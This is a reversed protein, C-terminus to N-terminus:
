NTEPAREFRAGQSVRVCGFHGCLDGHEAEILVSRDPELLLTVVREGERVTGPEAKQERLELCTASAAKSKRKPVSVDHCPFVNVWAFTADALRATGDQELMLTRGKAVWRGAIKPWVEVKLREFFEENARHVSKDWRVYRATEGGVLDTEVTDPDIWKWTRTAAGAHIRWAAGDPEATFPVRQDELGEIDLFAEGPERFYFARPTRDDPHHKGARVHEAFAAEYFSTKKLTAPNPGTPNAGGAAALLVLALARM